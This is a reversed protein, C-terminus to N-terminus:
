WPIPNGLHFFGGTPGDDPLLALEVATQAGTVVDLPAGEGGLDTKVWGPHASNVKIGSDRLQEALIITFMNLAVKSSNYGIRKFDTPIGSDAAANVALSGLISSQNVIRGGSSLSILPLLVKTLAIQSFFNLDFTKRIEAVSLQQFAAHSEFVSGANNVLIDLRGYTKQIWKKAHQFTESDDMDIHLFTVDPYSTRLSRAAAEGKEEDRAGLLVTVGKQALQRCIELGIGKNAGTILAIKKTEM